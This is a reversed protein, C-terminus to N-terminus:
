DSIFHCGKSTRDEIAANTIALATQVGNRLGIIEPNLRALQYFEEIENQLRRLMDQARHLRQRTRVLGVYNWMTNKINLWDQLILAPDIDEKGQEWSDISPFQLEFLKSSKGVIYGWVLCELLSTSALRNAGHVGTCAVEGIAYLGQLSTQGNLDVHIGGCSYHSAPVVPIATTTIDIDKELCHKYINPFRNKIWKDSRFSIDLYVCSHGTKLLTQHIGRAVIDRPVLSGKEHIKNMFENGNSDIIIGREGRVAESILFRGVGSFLTTPHFQVFQLNFCRAGARWAM